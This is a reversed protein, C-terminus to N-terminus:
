SWRGLAPQVAHAGHEMAPGCPAAMQIVPATMDRLRRRVEEAIMEAM